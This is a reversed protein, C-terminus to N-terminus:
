TSWPGNEIARLRCHVAVIVDRMGRIPPIAQHVLEELERYHRTAVEFDFVTPLEGLAGILGIALLFLQSHLSDPVALPRGSSGEVLTDGPPESATVETM